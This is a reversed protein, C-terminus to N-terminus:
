AENAKHGVIYQFVKESAIKIAHDDDKAMVTYMHGDRWHFSGELEIHRHREVRQLTGDLLFSVRYCHKGAHIADINPDLNRESISIPDYTDDLGEMKSMFLEANARTSFIGVVRYDSYSGQEIIWVKPM